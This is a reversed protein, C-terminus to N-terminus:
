RPRERFINAPSRALALSDEAPPATQQRAAAAELPVRQELTLLSPLPTAAHVGCWWVREDGTIGGVRSSFLESLLVQQAAEHPWPAGYAAHSRLCLVLVHPLLLM